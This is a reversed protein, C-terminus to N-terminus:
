SKEKEEELTDVDEPYLYEILLFQIGALAIVYVPWLYVSQGSVAFILTGHLSAMCVPCRFLPKCIWKGALYEINNAFKWFIFPHTSVAKIGWIWATGILLWEIM